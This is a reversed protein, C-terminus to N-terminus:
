VATAPDSYHVRKDHATTVCRPGALRKERQTKKGISRLMTESQGPGCGPSVNVTFGSSDSRALGKALLGVVVGPEDLFRADHRDGDVVPREWFCDPLQPWFVVALNGGATLIRRSEERNAASASFTLHYNQPWLTRGDPIGLFRSMRSVVKTYDFFQIETFESFLKPAVYEWPIDSTGNLRVAPQLGLRRADHVLRSLELRLMALFLGWDALYLASRRDRAVAHTPM